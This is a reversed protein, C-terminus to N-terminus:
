KRLYVALALSTAPVIKSIKMDTHAVLEEIQERTFPRTAGWEKSFITETKKDISYELGLTEYYAIRPELTGFAMCTFFVERATVHTMGQLVAQANEVCGITNWISISKDFFNKVFQDGLHEVNLHVLRVNTFPAAAQQAGQLYEQNLDVGYLEKVYPAIDPILRGTGIGVDLVRGAGKLFDLVLEKEVRLYERQPEPYKSTDLDDKKNAGFDEPM